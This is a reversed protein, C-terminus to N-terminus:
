SLKAPIGPRAKTPRCTRSPSSCAAAEAPSLSGDGDRDFHDFLKDLFGVWAADPPKGDATVELRLRAPGDGAPFLLVPDGAAVPAATLALLGALLPRM